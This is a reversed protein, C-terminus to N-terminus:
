VIIIKRPIRAVDLKRRVDFDYVSLCLLNERPTLQRAPSM